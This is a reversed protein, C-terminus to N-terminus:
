IFLGKCMGYALFHSENKKWRDKVPATLKEVHLVQRILRMFLSHKYAEVARVRYPSHRVFEFLVAGIKCEPAVVFIDVVTGAPGSSEINVSAMEVPFDSQSSPVSDFLFLLKVKFIFEMLIM